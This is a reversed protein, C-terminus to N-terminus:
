KAQTATDVEGPEAVSGCESAWHAAWAAADLAAVAHSYVRRKDALRARKAEASVSLWTSESASNGLSGHPSSRGPSV